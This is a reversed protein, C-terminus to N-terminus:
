IFHKGTLHGCKKKERSASMTEFFNFFFFWRSCTSVNEVSDMLLSTIAVWPASGKSTIKLYSFCWKLRLTVESFADRAFWLLTLEEQCSFNSTKFLLPSCPEINKKNDWVKGEFPWAFISKLKRWIIIYRWIEWSVSLGTAVAKLHEFYTLFIYTKM